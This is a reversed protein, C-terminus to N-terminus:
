ERISIRGEIARAIGSTVAVILVIIAGVVTAKEMDGGGVAWELMLLSLTRSKGTGLLVVTSIDRAASNFVLLGVVVLMPLILHFIIRRYTQLWSAGCTQSADELEAGLQLLVSKTLQV